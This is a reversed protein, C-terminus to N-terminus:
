QDLHPCCALHSFVVPWGGPSHPTVFAAAGSADGV